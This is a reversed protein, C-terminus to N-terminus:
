VLDLCAFNFDFFCEKEKVLIFRNKKRLKLIFFWFM